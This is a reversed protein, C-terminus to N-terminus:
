CQCYICYRLAVLPKSHNSVHKVNWNLAVQLPNCFFPTMIIANQLLLAGHCGTRFVVFPLYEYSYERHAIRVTFM